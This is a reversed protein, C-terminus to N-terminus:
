SLFDNCDMGSSASFKLSGLFREEFLDRKFKIEEQSLIKIFYCFGSWVLLISFFKFAHVIDYPKLEISDCKISLLWALIRGYSSLYYVSTQFLKPLCGWLLLLLSLLLPILLPLLLPFLLRILLPILPPILLPILTFPLSLLPLAGVAAITDTDTSNNSKPSISAVCPHRHHYKKFLENITKIKDMDAMIHLKEEKTPYPHNVHETIWNKLYQTSVLSLNSCSMPKSSRNITTTGVHCDEWQTETKISETKENIGKRRCSGFFLDSEMTSKSSSM